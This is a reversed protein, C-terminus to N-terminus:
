PETSESYPTHTQAGTPSSLDLFGQPWITVDLVAVKARGPLKTMKTPKTEKKLVLNNNIEM